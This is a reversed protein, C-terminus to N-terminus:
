PSFIFMNEKNNYSILYVCSLLLSMNFVNTAKAMSPILGKLCTEDIPLQFGSM